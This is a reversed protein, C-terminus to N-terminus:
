TQTCCVECVAVKLLALVRDLMQQQRLVAAAQGLTELTTAAVRYSGPVLPDVSMRKKYLVLLKRRILNAISLQVWDEKQLPRDPVDEQWEM